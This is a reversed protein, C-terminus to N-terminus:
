LFKVKALDAFSEFPAYDGPAAENLAVGDLEVWAHAEFRGHEKRGGIRLEAPCNRRRLLWWLALARELCAGTLIGERSAAFVLQAVRQPSFSGAGGTTEQRPNRPLRWTLLAHWTRYGVLFLAIRNLPLLVFAQLLM